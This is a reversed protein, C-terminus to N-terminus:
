LLLILVAVLAIPRTLMGAARDLWSLAATERVLDTAEEVHYHYSDLYEKAKENLCTEQLTEVVVDQGEPSTYGYEIDVCEASGNKMEWQYAALMFQAARVNDCFADSNVVSFGGGEVQGSMGTQCQQAFVAAASAAAVDDGEYILVSNDSADVNVDQATENNGSNATTNGVEATTNGVRSTSPGSVASSGYSTASGGAGGAGGQASSDSRSSAGGTEIGVDVRSSGGSASSSSNSNSSSLAAAAANSSSNAENSNENTNVTKNKNTNSGGGNGGGNGGDGGCFPADPHQECAGQGPEALVVTAGLVTALGLAYVWKSNSM